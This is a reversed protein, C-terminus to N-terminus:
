RWARVLRRVRREVGAGDRLHVKDHGAEGEVRRDGGDVDGNGARQDGGVGRGGGGGGGGEKVARAASFFLLCRASEMAWSRAKKGMTM